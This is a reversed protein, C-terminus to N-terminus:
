TDGKIRTFHAKARKFFDEVYYENGHDPETTLKRLRELEENFPAAKTSAIDAAKIEVEKNVSCICPIKEFDEATFILKM